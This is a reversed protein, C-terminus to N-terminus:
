AKLGCDATQSFASKKAVTEHPLNLCNNKTNTFADPGHSNATFLQRTIINIVKNHDM